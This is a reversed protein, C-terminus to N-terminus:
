LGLSGVPAFWADVTSSSAEEDFGVDSVTFAVIGAPGAASTELLSFTGGLKGLMQWNLGDASFWSMGAAM